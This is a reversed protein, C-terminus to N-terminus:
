CGGHLVVSEVMYGLVRWCRTWCEMMYSLVGGHLEIGWQYLGISWM